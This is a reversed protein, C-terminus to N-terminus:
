WSAKGVGPLQGKHALERICIRCLGFYRYVARPRDCRECRTYARVSFKPTRKAKVVMSTKAM